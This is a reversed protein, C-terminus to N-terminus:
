PFFAAENDVFIWGPSGIILLLPQDGQTFALQVGTLVTLPELGVRWQKGGDDSRLLGRQPHLAYARGSITPHDIRALPIFPKDALREEPLPQV